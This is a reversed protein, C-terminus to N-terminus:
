NVGVAKVQFWLHEKVTITPLFIDEQQVYGSLSPMAKGILGGNVRVDGSVLLNGRNRYTLVNLLTTKGSGSAGMVALITGPEVVGSVNKLIQKLDPDDDSPNNPSNKLDEDDGGVSGSNKNRKWLNLKEKKVPAYVNIHDWTLTIREVVDAFSMRHLVNLKQFLPTYITGYTTSARVSQRRTGLNIVDMDSKRNATLSFRRSQNALSQQILSPRRRESALGTRSASDVGRGDIFDDDDYLQETFPVPFTKSTTMHLPIREEQEKMM